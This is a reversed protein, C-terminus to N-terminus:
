NLKCVRNKALLLLTVEVLRLEYMQTQLKGLLDMYAEREKPNETTEIATELESIHHKAQQISERIREAADEAFTENDNELQRVEDQVAEVDQDDHEQEIEIWTKNDLASKFLKPTGPPLQQSEEEEEQPNGSQLSSALLRSLLGQLIQDESIM